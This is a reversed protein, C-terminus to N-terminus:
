AFRSSTSAGAVLAKIATSGIALDARPVEPARDPLEPEQLNVVNIDQHRGVVLHRKRPETRVLLRKEVVQDVAPALEGLLPRVLRRDYRDFAPRKSRCRM